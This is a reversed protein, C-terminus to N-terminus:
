AKSPCFHVLKAVNYSVETSDKRDIPFTNEITSRSVPEKDSNTLTFIYEDFVGSSQTYTFTVTDTLTHDVSETLQSTMQPKIIESMPISLAM